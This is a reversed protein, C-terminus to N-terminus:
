AQQQLSQQWASDPGLLKGEGLETLFATIVRTSCLVIMLHDHLQVDALQMDALQIDALHMHYHMCGVHAM